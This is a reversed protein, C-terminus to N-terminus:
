LMSSCPLAAYTGSCVLSLLHCIVPHWLRFIAEEATYKSELHWSLWRTPGVRQEYKETNETNKQTKGANHLVQLGFNGQRYAFGSVNDIACFLMVGRKRERECASSLININEEVDCMCRASGCYKGDNRIVTKFFEGDVARCKWMFINGEAVPRTATCKIERLNQMVSCVLDVSAHFVVAIDATQLEM